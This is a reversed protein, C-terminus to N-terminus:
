WRAGFRFAVDIAPGSPELDETIGALWEPGRRFRLFGGSDITLERADLESTGTDHYLASHYILNTYLHFPGAVRARVGQSIMLFTTHQLDSLAGHTPTYGAGISGEYTFRKWFDSRLMSTANASAVGKTFGETGASTPLTVSVVTQWHPSHRIGAGLRLDGLYGASNTYTLHRGDALDLEYGFRNKPRIRRAEVQLGVLDHYWQLFGDLSGDYAGNFSGQVLLFANKRVDRTVTLELRMLEADMLYFVRPNSAYEVPSAYDLVAALHWRRGPTVYPQTALGTRSFVMPNMSAYPPLGQAALAGGGLGAALCVLLTARRARRTM